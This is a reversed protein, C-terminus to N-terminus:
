RPQGLRLMQRTHDIGFSQFRQLVNSGILLDSAQTGIMATVGHIRYAGLTLTIQVRNHTLRSGDALVVPVPSMSDAATIAGAQWLKLFVPYPLVVGTAGTDILGWYPGVDNVMVPVRYERSDTGVLTIEQVNSQPPTRVKAETPLAFLASALLAAGIFARQSYAIM